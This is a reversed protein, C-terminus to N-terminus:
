GTYYGWSLGAKHLLYSLDTWAYDPRTAASPNAPANPEDYCSSPDAFRTCRASWGSVLGLHTPLSYSNISAFMRDQLVFDSAYAWYNPLERSDHFSMVDSRGFGASEAANIFGDMKGGDIDTNGAALTHPGGGNTLDTTHYPKVCTSTKPDPVCVTPVGASNRPIGNAGPYTGFYSDYSRNEQMVIVIHQLPPQNAAG